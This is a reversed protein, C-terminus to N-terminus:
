KTKEGAEDAKRNKWNTYMKAAVALRQPPFKYINKIRAQAIRMFQNMEDENKKLFFQQLDYLTM